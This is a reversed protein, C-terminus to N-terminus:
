VNFVENLLKKKKINIGQLQAKIKDFKYILFQMPNHEKWTCLM